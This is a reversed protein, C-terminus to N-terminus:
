LVKKLVVKMIVELYKSFDKKEGDKMGHILVYGINLMM